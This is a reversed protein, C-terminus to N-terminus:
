SHTDSSQKPISWMLLVLNEETFLSYTNFILNYQTESYAILEHM